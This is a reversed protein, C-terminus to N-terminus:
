QKGAVMIKIPNLHKFKATRMVTIILLVNKKGQKTRSGFTLHRFIVSNRLGQETRNNTPEALGPHGFPTGRKKLNEPIEKVEFSPKPM